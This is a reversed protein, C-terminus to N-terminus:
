PTGHPAEKSSLLEDLVQYGNRLLSTRLADDDPTNPSLKLIKRDTERVTRRAAQLLEDANGDRLAVLERALLGPPDDRRALDDLDHAPVADNTVRDLFCKQDGVFIELRERSLEECAADLAAFAATRGTLRVRLGVARAHALDPEHAAAHDQIGTTVHAALNRTPDALDDIAVDLTEWRLPAQPLHEITIADGDIEILWPGHPGTETPDLGVLSGLYGPQDSAPDLSPRHIHGLLWRCPGAAILDRRDVPAYRSGPTDLDAHLLGIVPPGADLPSLDAAPSTPHHAAPFSWGLVRVPDGDGEITVTEWRGGAGLLRLNPVVKELRPLVDHDHNGAVALVEIGHDTLPRLEDTLVGLAHYIDRTDDAVDGALLVATVNLSVASQVALHLAAAPGLENASPTAPLRSSTRGLHIDGVALLRTPM